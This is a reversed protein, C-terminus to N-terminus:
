RPIVTLIVYEMRIKWTDADRVYIASWYGKYVGHSWESIGAVESLIPYVQLLKSRFEGLGGEIEAAWTKEIAQQGSVTGGGEFDWVQIADPTFLAAVAAADHKNFADDFNTLVAEIQQRVQPDVTNQEQALTSFAFSIALGILIGLLRIKM